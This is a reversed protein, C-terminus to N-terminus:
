SGEKGYLFIDGPPEGTDESGEQFPCGPVAGSQAM